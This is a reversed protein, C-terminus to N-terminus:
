IGAAEIEYPMCVHGWGAAIETARHHYWDFLSRHKAADDRFAIERESPKTSLVVSAVKVDGRHVMRVNYKNVVIEIPPAQLEMAKHMAARRTEIAAAKIIKEAESLKPKREAPHRRLLLHAACTTGYSLGDDVENGDEDLEALWVVRKLGTRGCCSCSSEDDNTALYRYRPATPETAMFVFM